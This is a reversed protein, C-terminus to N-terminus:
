AKKKDVQRIMKRIFYYLGIGFIWLPWLTILALMVSQIASWGKGFGSGAKQGFSETLEDPNESYEIQQYLEVSITSYAVQNQLYKLRGERAEIEERIQRLQEEADLVDQVTKTKSKLIEIYRLEVEKKTKIRAEIDVWEETVDQTSVNKRDMHLSLKCVEKLLPDFKDNPVRISLLNNAETNTSRMNANSIYANFNKVIADIAESSQDLDKVQFRLDANRILKPQEIDPLSADIKDNVTNVPANGINEEYAIDMKASTTDTSENKLEAQGCAVLTILALFAIPKM